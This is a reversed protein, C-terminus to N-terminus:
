FMGRFAGTNRERPRVLGLRGGRSPRKKGTRLLLRFGRGGERDRSTRRHREAREWVGNKEYRRSSGAGKEQRASEGVGEGIFGRKADEVYGKVCM